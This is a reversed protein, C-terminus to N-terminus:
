ELAVIDAGCGLHGHARAALGLDYLPAGQPADRVLHARHTPTPPCCTPMLGEARAGSHPLPPRALGNDPRASRLPVAAAKSGHFTNQPAGLTDGVCRCGHCGQLSPEDARWAIERELCGEATWPAAAQLALQRFATADAAPRTARCGANTASGVRGDHGSGRCPHPAHHRAAPKRLARCCLWRCWPRCSWRRHAKEKQM